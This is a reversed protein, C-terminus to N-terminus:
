DATTAGDRPGIAIGISAGITAIHDEILYPRSLLDVLRAGTVEAFGPAPMVVAFEDGGLRSVVDGDRVASRLRQAALQLLADGVPHGHSDNVAKFRDLDIMLVAVQDESSSGTLLTNLRQRFWQRDSLGTLSDTREAPLFGTAEITLKVLRWGDVQRDVTVHLVRERSLTIQFPHVDEGAEHVHSCPATRLITCLTRRAASDLEASEGIVEDLM